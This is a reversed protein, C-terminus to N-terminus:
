FNGPDGVKFGVNRSIETGSKEDKAVIDLRYQGNPFKRLDLLGLVKFIGTERIASNKQIFLKGEGMSKGAQDKLAYRFRWKGKKQEAISLVLPQRAKAKLTPEIRPIYLFDGAVFPFKQEEFIFREARLNMIMGQDFTRPFTPVLFTAYELNFDPVLIESTGLSYSGTLTNLLLYRLEFQGVPLQLNAFIRPSRKMMFRNKKLNISFTQASFDVIDRNEDLAYVFAELELEEAEHGMTLAKGESELLVAVKVIDDKAYMPQALIRTKLEDATEEGLILAAKDASSFDDEANGPNPAFYGRRAYQIRVGAPVGRLKVKLKHYSGDAELNTPSFTIKYMSSTNQILKDFAKSTDNYNKYFKGGTDAAMQFLGDQSVNAGNPRLGKIDVAHVAWGTQRFVKFMSEQHSRVMGGYADDMLVNNPFGQSLLVLYKRGEIDRFANAILANAYSMEIASDFAANPIGVKVMHAMKGLERKLLKLGKLTGGKDNIALRAAELKPQFLVGPLPSEGNNAALLLPDFKELNEEDLAQTLRRRNKRITLDSMQMLAKTARDRDDTFGTFVVVGLGPKFMAVSVLDQPHLGNQVLKLAAASAKRLTQSTSFQLDFIFLYHRRDGPSLSGKPKDSPEFQGGAQWLVEEVQIIEQKRGEDLIVFNDPTLGTVPNGNQIVQVPVEIVVVRQTEAVDQATLHATILVFFSLWFRLWLRRYRNRTQVTRKM